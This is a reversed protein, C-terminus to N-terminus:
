QGTLTFAVTQKGPVGPETYQVLLSHTGRPINVSDGSWNGKADATVTSMFNAGSRNIVNVQTGTTAKGSFTTPANATVVDGSQHSDFSFPQVTAREVTIALSIMQKGPTGPEIYQVTLGNPGDPLDATGTWDGSPGVTLTPMVPTTSGNRVVNVLTGTSAKGTFTVTGQPNTQVTDNNSPSTLEFPQTIGGVVTLTLKETQKGPKGPETYQVTVTHTGNPLTAQGSWNGDADITTGSMLINGRKDVVNVTTGTAGVGTVDFTNSNVTAGDAPSTVDFPQMTGGQVTITLDVTQKGPKGPELYQVTITHTGNPLTVQGSWDGNGDITTARMIPNTNGARIANVTTGTTGIGTIDFTNSTVTGGNSPSTVEFPQVVSQEVTVTFDVTKKAGSGPETYQATLVHTGSPLSAKGSWNGSADTTTTTMVIDGRSNVVNVMTGTTALGKIDFPGPRLTAGDTPETIEFDQVVGNQVTITLPQAQQGQGPETYQVTLNHVGNTLAVSTGNWDGQADATRNTMVNTAGEVIRVQTGPEARGTFDVTPGAVTSNNAPTTVEFPITADDGPNVVVTSTTTNAGKSKQTATITAEGNPINVARNWTGDDRVEVTRPTSGTVAVTVESGPEGKGEVTIPSDDIEDQDMPSEIAVATGFDLTVERSTKKDDADTQEVTLKYEGGKNPADVEISYEGEANTTGTAVANGDADTVSIASDPKGKGSIVSKEDRGDQFAWDASFPKIAEVDGVLEGSAYGGVRLTNHIYSAAHHTRWADSTYKWFTSTSDGGAGVPNGDWKLVGDEYSFKGASCSGFALVDSGFLARMQRTGGSGNHTWYHEYNRPQLCQTGKALAFRGDAEPHVSVRSDRKADELNSYSGAFDNWTTADGVPIGSSSTQWSGPRGPTYFKGRNEFVLDIEGTKEGLRTSPAASASAAGFSLGSAITAIALASAGLGKALRKTKNSM